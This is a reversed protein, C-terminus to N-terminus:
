LLELYTRYESLLADINEVVKAYNDDQRTQRICLLASNEITHISKIEFPIDNNIVVRLVDLLMDGYVTFHNEKGGTGEHTEEDLLKM